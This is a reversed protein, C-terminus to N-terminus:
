PKQLSRIMQYRKCSDLEEEIFTTLQDMYLAINPMDGSEIHPLNLQEKIWENDQM